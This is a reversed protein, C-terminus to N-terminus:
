PKQGYPHRLPLINMRRGPLGHPGPLDKYRLAYSVQNLSDATHLLSQRQGASTCSVVMSACVLGAGIWGVYRKRDM